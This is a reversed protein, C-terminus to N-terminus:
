PKCPWVARLSQFALLSFNEHLREPHEDMWKVFVAIMQLRTTAGPPCVRMLRQGDRSFTTMDQIVEFAGWCRFTEVDDPMTSSDGTVQVRTLPRCAGLMEQGSDAIASKPVLAIAAAAILLTRRCM